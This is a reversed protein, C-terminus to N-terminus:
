FFNYAKAALELFTVNLVHYSQCGRVLDEAAYAFMSLPQTILMRRAFRM